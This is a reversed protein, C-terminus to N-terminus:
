RAFVWPTLMSYMLPMLASPKRVTLRSVSTRVRGPPKPVYRGKVQLNQKLQYNLPISTGSQKEYVDTLLM